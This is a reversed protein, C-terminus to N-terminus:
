FTDCRTITTGSINIAPSLCVGQLYNTNEGGNTDDTYAWQDCDINEFAYPNTGATDFGDPAVVRRLFIDAPGGQNIIGQKYILMASLGSDSSLISPISNTTTAFRRAIETFFIDDSWDVDEDYEVPNFRMCLTFEGDEEVCESPQNIMGGQAVYDHEFMDFSHYFCMKVLERIPDDNTTDGDGDDVLLDGFAKTEEYAMVVWASKDLEGDGDEDVDKTYPKLNLRVRTSAVRGNLARAM